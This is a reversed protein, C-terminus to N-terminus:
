TLYSETGNVKDGPRRGTQNLLVIMEGRICTRQAILIGARFYKRSSFHLGRGSNFRRVRNQLGTRLWEAVHGEILVTCSKGARRGDIYLFTRRGVVGTRKGKAM